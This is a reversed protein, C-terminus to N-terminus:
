GHVRQQQQASSGPLPAHPHRLTDILPHPIQAKERELCGLCVMYTASCHKMSMQSLLARMATWCGCPRHHALSSVCVTTQAAVCQRFCTSTHHAAATHQETPGTRPLVVSRVMRQISSNTRCAARQQLVVKLTNSLMTTRLPLLARLASSLLLLLLATFLFARHLWAMSTLVLSMSQM